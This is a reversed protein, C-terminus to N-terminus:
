PLVVITDGGRILDRASRPLIICGNSASYDGKSNDGHVFFETRGFMPTGYRPTLYVAQPGLRPHPVPKSCMYSGVPIPGNAVEKTAGPDDRYVGRGSYGAHGHWPSVANCFRGDAIQYLWVNIM